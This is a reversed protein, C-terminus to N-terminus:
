QQTFILVTRTIRVFCYLKKKFSAIDKKQEEALKTTLTELNTPPQVSYLIDPCQQSLTIIEPKTMALCEKIIEVTKATCTATLAM